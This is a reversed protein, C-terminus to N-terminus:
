LPMWNSDGGMRKFKKKRGKITKKSLKRSALEKSFDKGTLGINRASNLASRLLITNYGLETSKRMLRRDHPDMKDSDAVTNALDKAKIGEDKLAQITIDKFQRVMDTALELRAKVTPDLPSDLSKKANNQILNLLSGLQDLIPDIPDNQQM